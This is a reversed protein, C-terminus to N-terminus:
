GGGSRRASIEASKRVLTAEVDYGRGIDLCVDLSVRIAGVGGGREAMGRCDEFSLIMGGLVEKGGTGRRIERSTVEGDFSPDTSWPFNDLRFWRAALFIDSLM